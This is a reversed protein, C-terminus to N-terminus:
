HIQTEIHKSLYHQLSILSDSYIIPSDSPENVIKVILSPKFYNNPSFNAIKIQINKIDDCLHEIKRLRKMISYNM